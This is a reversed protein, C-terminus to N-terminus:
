AVAGVHFVASKEFPLVNGEQAAKAKAVGGPLPLTCVCCCHCVANCTQCNKDRMAPKDSFCAVDNKYAFEEYLHIASQNYRLAATHPCISKCVYIMKRNRQGAGVEARWTEYRKGNKVTTFKSIGKYNWPNKGPSPRGAANNQSPTCVRLNCRRNDFTDGNIHDVVYGDPADMLHRGLPKSKGWGPGYASIHFYDLDKLRRTTSHLKVDKMKEADEDDILVVGHKVPIEIM